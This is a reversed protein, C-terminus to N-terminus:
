CWIFVYREEDNRLTEVWYYRLSSACNPLLRNVWVEEIMYDIFYKKWSELGFEGLCKLIRTIRLYNHSSSNLNRYRSKYNSARELEGTTKDKLKIGYFDLMLEYARILREICQPDARIKEIEHKQLKQSLSNMGHERIPFLWQIYGHHAELIEYNGKWKTLINEIYDGHPSSELQNTYFLYNDNADKDDIDGPYGDRYRQLDQKANGAGM